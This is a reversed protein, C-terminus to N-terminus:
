AYMRHVHSVGAGMSAPAARQPGLKLRALQMAFECRGDDLVEELLKEGSAVRGSERYVVGLLAKSMQSEPFTALSIKLEREAEPLRGQSILCLALFDNPQPIDARYAQIARLIQESEKFRKLRTALLGVNLLLRSVKLEVAFRKVM